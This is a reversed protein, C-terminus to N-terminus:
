VGHYRQLWEPTAGARFNVRSPPLKVLLAEKINGLFGKDFPNQSGMYLQQFNEYSTQNIAILYVHYTALCALLGIAGFSFSALAVTEPYDKLLGILGTGAEFVRQHIRWFCFSFIYLCFALVSVLLSLYFRYNQLGICQGLWPCHHDFKEVCNDCIACHCCRPPRYIKCVRCYKVKVKVGNVMIWKKRSKHSTGVEEASPQDDSRPIIGPDVMGFAMLNVLVILTLALSITVLSSYNPFNYAVYVTFTWSSLIISVVTLLLGKPDPGCIFRGKFSFVNKGPWVQYVRIGENHGGSCRQWWKEEVFRKLGILSEWLKVLGKKKREAADSEVDDTEGNGSFGEYEIEPPESLATREKAESGM